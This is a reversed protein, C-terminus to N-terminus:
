RRPPLHSSGGTPLAQIDGEPHWLGQGVRKGGGSSLAGCVRWLEHVEVEALTYLEVNPNDRVANLLPAESCMPCEDTPFTKNLMTMHGGVSPEREVVYTKIGREAIDRAATMGAVGGGIVLAAPVVDIRKREVPEALRSRMVAGRVLAKAKETAEEPDDTCWSCQERINVQEHFYPNIGMESLVKMFTPGHQRVSCSAVITRDLGFEEIKEKILNIGETSCMFMNETSYVVGPLQSAYEAVERVDVKGAINEGCHCIFFGIRPEDGSV